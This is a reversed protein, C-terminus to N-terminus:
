AIQASSPMLIPTHNSDADQPRISSTPVSDISVPEHITVRTPVVLWVIPLFLITCFATLRVLHRKSADKRCLRTLMWAGLLIASASVSWAGYFAAFELIIAGTM